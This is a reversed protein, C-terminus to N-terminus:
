LSPQTLCDGRHYGGDGRESWLRQGEIVFIFSGPPKGCLPCDCHPRQGTARRGIMAKIGILDASTGGNTKALRGSLGKRQRDYTEGM